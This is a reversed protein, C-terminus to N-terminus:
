PQRVQDKAIEGPRKKMTWWPARIAIDKQDQPNPSFCYSLYSVSFSKM